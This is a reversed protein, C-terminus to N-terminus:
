LQETRRLKSLDFGKEQLRKVIGAYVVADM